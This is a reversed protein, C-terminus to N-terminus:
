RHPLPPSSDRICMESRRALRAAKQASTKAVVALAARSTAPISLLSAIAGIDAVLSVAYADENDDWYAVDLAASSIHILSLDM